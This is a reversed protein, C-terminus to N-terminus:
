RPSAGGRLPLTAIVQDADDPDAVVSFGLTAVFKLMPPNARLVVGVLRAFGRKRAADVLRAMLAHAVGRGQWRDAVVVAFEASEGDPNAIYRAVGVIDEGDPAAPDPALAVLALERDYDVQTFRALMQPTLEHLQYFFRRYRTEESMGHVFRREREADEPRIPRVALTAGDRLAITGALEVPYPHIAMHGYGRRSRRRPDVVIGAAGILVAGPAVLVPDLKLARVWPCRCVLASLQLLMRVLPEADGAHVGAAAIQDLALRRNLPPLALARSASPLPRASGGLTLVPGFVDDSAVGIALERMGDIHVAKRVLMAGNWRPDGLATRTSKALADWARALARGDAIPGPSHVPSPLSADVALSVPYGLRRAIARGEVPTAARAYAPVPLGFAGLLAALEPADLTRRDGIADRVRAIAAEDPAELEPQSPPVELLLEQHRRYSALFAFAEVANEPTYFNAVGGAELAARAEPREIAGLWAGLVPKPSARAVAAIARAADIPVDAPRPVHLAVVADVSPDALVAGVAAAFREPSADGRVDVPNARVSEDPLIADLAAVTTAGLTALEIGADLASDAALIAPGRGNAVVAIREGKPIRGTALLRAAAFLQTYTRVRVTGCRRMAADFVADHSLTADRRELARGAKLLVVPKTRAAARLASLFRRADIVQEVYLVIGDTDPDALLADLLEGVDVDIVGGLSIVTSFGIGGPLAFDLMATCVAGSQAVLALRGPLVRVDSFTANLGIGTRIVGFAGPGVVRIGHAAALAAIYRSWRRAETASGAPAATLLVAAQAKARSADELVSPVEDCPVAIVCLEVPTGISAISAHSRQGLVRRHRPNVAHFAGAYRGGLVNEMVIRGLSGPRESAGVLAFSAPALLPRLYHRM